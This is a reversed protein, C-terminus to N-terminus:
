AYGEAALRKGSPAYDPLAPVGCGGVWTNYFMFLACVTVADYIAGDDWGSAKVAEIDDRTVTSSDRVVKEILGLLAAFRGEV